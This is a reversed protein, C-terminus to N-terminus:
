LQRARHQDHEAGYYIPYEPFIDRGEPVASMDPWRAALEDVWSEELVGLLDLQGQTRQRELARRRRNAARYYADHRNHCAACLSVVFTAPSTYDHFWHAVTLVPLHATAPDDPRRCAAGCLQCEWGAADKVAYAIEDWNDPYLAPDMPM